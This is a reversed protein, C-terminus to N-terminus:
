RYVHAMPMTTSTNYLRQIYCGTELKPIEIELWYVCEVNIELEWILMEMAM